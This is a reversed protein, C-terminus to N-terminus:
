KRRTCCAPVSTLVPCAATEAGLTSHETHRYAEIISKKRNPPTARASHGTWFLNGQYRYRCWTGVLVQRHKAPQTLLGCEELDPTARLEIHITNSQTPFPPSADARIHFDIDSLKAVIRGPRSKENNAQYFRSRTEGTQM